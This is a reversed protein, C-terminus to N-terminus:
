KIYGKQKMFIDPHKDTKQLNCTKCLLQINDDTNSGGLKIPMIHDMHTIDKTLNVRCYVCEGNQDHFLKDFLGASLKGGDKRIKAKRNHRIIRTREPNDKSWQSSLKNMRERNELHWTAKYETVKYINAKVYENKVIRLREKNNECWDNIVKKVKEPNKERYEKSRKNFKEKNKLHYSKNNEKYKEKNKQRWKRTRIVACNACINPSRIYFRNSGCKECIKM